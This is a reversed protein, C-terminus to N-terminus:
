DGGIRKVYLPILSTQSIPYISVNLKKRLVLFLIGLSLTLTYFISSFEPIPINTPELKFEIYSASGDSVTVNISKTKYGEISVKLMYHGNPLYMEYYGNENSYVVEILSNNKLAEVKAWAIPKLSEHIDFGFVKGYIFGGANVSPISSIILITLAITLFFLIKKSSKM